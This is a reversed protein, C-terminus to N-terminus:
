DNKFANRLGQQELLPLVDSAFRRLGDQYDIWTLLVGDIGCDSLMQLRAAIQDARGVM